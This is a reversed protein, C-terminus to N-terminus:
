ILKARKLIKQATAREKAGPFEKLYKNVELVIEQPRNLKKLCITLRDLIDLNGAKLAEWEASVELYVERATGTYKKAQNTNMKEYKIMRIIAERYLSIAKEIDTREQKKAEKLLEENEKRLDWYEDYVKYDMDLGMNVWNILQGGYKVMLDDELYHADDETINDKVIEVTYEGNFRSIYKKWLEHRGEKNWARKETGKGVYFVKGLPDKHVYVYFKKETGGTPANFSVRIWQSIDHDNM